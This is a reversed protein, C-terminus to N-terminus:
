KNPKFWNYAGYVSNLLFMIWMILVAYGTGTDIFSLTWMYISLINVVIWCLWQERYGKIMLYTALLSLVTTVSDVSSLSGGLTSLLQSYISITLLTLTSLKLLTVGSVKKSTVESGNMGKTWYYAGVFQVPLYFIWNLMTDGYYLATYAVYGYLVSNITGWFFNSVRKMNVLFVCIVGTIGALTSVISDQWHFSLLTMVMVMTSLIVMDKLKLSNLDDYVTQPKFAKILSM